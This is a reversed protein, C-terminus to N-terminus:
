IQFNIIPTPNTVKQSYLNSISVIFFTAGKIVILWKELIIDWETFLIYIICYLM